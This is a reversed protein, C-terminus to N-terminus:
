IEVSLEGVINLYQLFLAYDNLPLFLGSSSYLQVGEM